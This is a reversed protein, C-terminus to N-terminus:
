FWMDAVCRGDRSLDDFTDLDDFHDIPLHAVPGPETLRLNVAIRRRGDAELRLGRWCTVCGCDGCFHIELAPNAKGKRTYITSAGSTKILGGEFDYIWLVGYRRCLTCNCATVSDPMGDFTWGLRGCHCTGILM